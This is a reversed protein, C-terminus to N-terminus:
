HGLADLYIRRIQRVKAQIDLNREAFRRIAGRDWRTALATSLATVLASADGPPVLVGCQGSVIDPIGGVASAVVPLGTGLAEMVVNPMGERLTPLVLLDSDQYLRIMEQHELRGRFVVRGALGHQQVFDRVLGDQPGDGALTLTFDPGDQALRVLAPLLVDLLGKGPVFHGAFLLKKRGVEVTPRGPPCFRALDVGNPVVHVPCDFPGYNKEFEGALARSKVIIASLGSLAMRVRRDSQLPFSRVMADSGLVSLVHPLGYTARIRDGVLLNPWVFHSHILDPRFSAVTRAITPVIQPWAFDALLPGFLREPPAMVLPRHVTRLPAQTTRPVSAKQLWRRWAAFVGRRPLVMEKRITMYRPVVAESRVGARHLWDLQEAIFPVETPREPTPHHNCLVLLRVSIDEEASKMQVM